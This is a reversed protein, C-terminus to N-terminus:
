PTATVTLTIDGSAPMTGNYEDGLVEGAPVTYTKTKLTTTGQKLQITASGGGGINQAGYAVYLPDGNTIQPQENWSGSQYTYYKQVRANYVQIFINQMNVAQAVGRITFTVSVM